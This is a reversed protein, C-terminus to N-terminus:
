RRTETFRDDLCLKAPNEPESGKVLSSNDNRPKVPSPGIGCASVHSNTSRLDECATPRLYCNSAVHVEGFPQECCSLQSREFHTLSLACGPGYGLRGTIEELFHCGM